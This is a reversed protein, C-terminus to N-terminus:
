QYLWNRSGPLVKGTYEKYIADLNNTEKFVTGPKDFRSYFTKYEEENWVIKSRVSKESIASIIIPYRRKKM